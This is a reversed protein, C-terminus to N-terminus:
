RKYKNNQKTTLDVENIITVAISLQKEISNLITIRDDIQKKYLKYDSSNPKLYALGENITSSIQQHLDIYINYLEINQAIVEAKDNFDVIVNEYKLTFEISEFLIQQYQKSNRGEEGNNSILEMVEDILILYNSYENEIFLILENVAKEDCNIYIYEDEETTRERKLEMINSTNKTAILPHNDNTQHNSNNIPEQLLRAGAGIGLTIAVAILVIKKRKIIKLKIGQQIMEQITQYAKLNM